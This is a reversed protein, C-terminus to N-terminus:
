LSLKVLHPNDNLTWFILAISDTPGTITYVNKKSQLEQFM